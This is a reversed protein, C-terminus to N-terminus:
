APVPTPMPLSRYPLTVRVLGGRGNVTGCEMTAAPGHLATLRARTNSLGIGDRREAVRFGPGSDQLEVELTEGKRTVIIRLTGPGPVEAIGHRIANEVLPQMLMVPVAADLAHDDIERLVTLRDGFRLMMLELYQDIFALEEALPVEQTRQTELTFRLLDSLVTLGRTVSESDGRLALTSMANLTNFLFHPQLQERLASLRAEALSAELKLAAQERERVAETARRAHVVGVVAGYLAFNTAFRWTFIKFWFLWFSTSAPGSLLQYTAVTVGTHVAAILFLALLHIPLARRWQGQSVPFREAMWLTFPLFLILSLWPVMSSIATYGFTIKADRLENSAHQQVTELVALLLCVGAIPLLIPWTSNKRLM